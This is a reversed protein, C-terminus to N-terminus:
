MQLTPNEINEFTWGTGHNDWTEITCWWGGHLRQATWPPSRSIGEHHWWSQWTSFWDSDTRSIWWFWTYSNFVDIFQYFAKLELCGLDLQILVPTCHLVVRNNRSTSSNVHLKGLILALWDILILWDIDILRQCPAKWTIFGILWDIWILWDNTHLKALLGIKWFEWTTRWDFEITMMVLVICAQHM